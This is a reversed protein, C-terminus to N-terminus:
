GLKDGCAGVQKLQVTSFLYAGRELVVKTLHSRGSVLVRARAMNYM